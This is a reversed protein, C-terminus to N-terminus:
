LNGTLHMILALVAVPCTETRMIRKGLTILSVGATQAARAEEPEFGGEPGVMLGITKAGSFPLNGIKGEPEQEYPMVALDMQTMQELAASFSVPAAVEPVRGRGCQKAAELAIKQYRALKKDPAAAVCRGSIVPVVRGVGLETAKQVVADLKSAKPMCQFLTVFTKPEALCPGSSLIECVAGDKNMEVIRAEYDTGEGDCLTVIDSVRLRLVKLHAQDEGRLVAQSGGFASKDMFFKPM